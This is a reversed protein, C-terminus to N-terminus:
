AELKLGQGVRQFILRGGERKGLGRLPGKQQSVAERGAMGQLEAAILERRFWTGRGQSWVMDFGAKV